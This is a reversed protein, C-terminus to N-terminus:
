ETEHHEGLDPMMEWKSYQMQHYLDSVAKPFEDIKARVYDDIRTIMKKANQNGLMVQDRAWCYLELIDLGKLWQMENEELHEAYDCDSVCDHFNSEFEAMKKSDILGRWKAPAPSDGSFREPQDHQIIAWILERPADPYLIMLMALMNYSHYGVNYEGLSPITHVRKVQACERMLKIRQLDNLHPYDLM